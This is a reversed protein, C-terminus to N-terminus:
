FAELVHIIHELSAKLSALQISSKLETRLKCKRLRLRSSEKREELEARRIAKRLDAAIIGAQPYVPHAPIINWDSMCCHSNQMIPAEQNKLDKINHKETGKKPACFFRAQDPTSLMVDSMGPISVCALERLDAFLYLADSNYFYPFDHASNVSRSGSIDHTILGLVKVNISRKETKLRCDTNKEFIRM